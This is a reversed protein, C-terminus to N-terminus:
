FYAVRQQGATIGHPLFVERRDVRGDVSVLLEATTPPVGSPPERLIVSGSGVHSLPMEDQDVLLKLVVAASHERQDM